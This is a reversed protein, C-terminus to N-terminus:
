FCHILFSVKFSHCKGCIVSCSVRPRSKNPFHHFGQLRSCASTCCGGSIRRPLPLAWRTPLLTHFCVARGGTPLACGSKGTRTTRLTALLWTAATSSSGTIQWVAARTWGQLENSRLHMPFETFPVRDWPKISLDGIRSAGCSCVSDEGNELAIQQGPGTNGLTFETALVMKQEASSYYM